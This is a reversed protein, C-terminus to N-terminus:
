PVTSTPQGSTLSVAGRMRLNLRSIISTGSLISSLEACVSILPGGGGQPGGPPPCSRASPSDPAALAPGAEPGTVAGRMRLNLDLGEETVAPM